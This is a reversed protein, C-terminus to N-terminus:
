LVIRSKLNQVLDEHLVKFRFVKSPLSQIKPQTFMSGMVQVNGGGMIRTGQIFEQSAFPTHMYNTTKEYSTSTFSPIFQLM